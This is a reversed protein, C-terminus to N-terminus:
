KLMTPMGSYKSSSPQYLGSSSQGAKKGSQAAGSSSTENKKKSKGVQQLREQIKAILLEIEDIAYTFVLRCSKGQIRDKQIYKLAHRMCYITEDEDDGANNDTNSTDDTSPKYKVMSISLNARCFDCEFEDAIKNKNKSIPVKETQM